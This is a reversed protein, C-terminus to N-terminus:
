VVQSPSQPINKNRLHVIALPQSNQGNIDICPNFIPYVPSSFEVCFSHLLALTDGDYFSVNGKQIDVLVGLKQITKRVALPKENSDQCILYKGNGHYIYCFANNFDGNCHESDQDGAASGYSLGILWFPKKWVAVEWYHSGSSFREKARVSYQSSINTKQKREPTPKKSWHVELRDASVDLEPHATEPDLSIARLSSWLRQTNQLVVEDLNDVLQEVTKMKDLTSYEQEIVSVLPLEVQSGLGHKKFHSVESFLPELDQLASKALHKRQLLLSKNTELVKKFETCAEQLTVAQHNKHSGVAICLCCVAIQDEQCFLKLEEGHEKCKFSILDETVEIISHGRLAERQQHLLTHASCLSADCTLCSKVAVETKGICQDCMIISPSMQSSEKLLPARAFADQVKRQLDSNIELELDPPLLIQCEPCFLPGERSTKPNDMNWVVQICTQCFNHGCPLRM